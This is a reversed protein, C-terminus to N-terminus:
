EALNLKMWIKYIYHHTEAITFIDLVFCVSFM